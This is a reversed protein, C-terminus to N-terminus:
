LTIGQKISQIEAMLYALQAELASVRGDVDSVQLPDVRPPNLDDPLAQPVYPPMMQSIDRDRYVDAKLEEIGADEPLDATLDNTSQGQLGGLRDWIDALFLLWPRTWMGTKPDIPPTNFQPFGSM